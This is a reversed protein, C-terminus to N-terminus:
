LDERFSEYFQQVSKSGFQEKIQSESEQFFSHIPEPLKILIAINDYGKEQKREMEKYEAIRQMKLWAERGLTNKLWTSVAKEVFSDVTTIGMERARDSKLFEEIEYRRRENLEVSQYETM